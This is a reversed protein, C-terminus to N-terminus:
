SLMGRAQKIYDVYPALKKAQYNDITAYDFLGQPNFDYGSFGGGTSGGIGEGVGDGTGDGEGEGRNRM